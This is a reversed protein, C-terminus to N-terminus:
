RRNSQKLVQWRGTMWLVWEEAGFLTLGHRRWAIGTRRAAQAAPKTSTSACQSAEQSRSNKTGARPFAYHNDKLYSVSRQVAPSPYDRRGSRQPQSGGQSPNSGSGTQGGERMTGGLVQTPYGRWAVSTPWSKNEAFNMQIRKQFLRSVAMCVVYWVTGWFINKGPFNGGWAIFRQSDLRISKKKM